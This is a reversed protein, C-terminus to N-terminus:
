RSELKERVADLQSKLWRMESFNEGGARAVLLELAEARLRLLDKSDPDRAEAVDLLHLAEVVEGADIRKRAAAVLADKGALEALEEWVGRAPVAYLAATSDYHFWGAHEEWIARVGWSVKGHAEGVAIEAPLQVERMLAYVDRGENMGRTTEDYVYQVAARVRALGEAIVAAGEIPDGHGTVLREAGLSAVRDLSRLFERASRYKDGRITYLAPFNGFAPGFLNGTFATKEDPLWVVLSDTTEGGPTSLLEFRRGGLEFAFRDEFVETPLPLPPPAYPEDTNGLVGGWLKRSRDRYFRGFRHWYDTVDGYNAHALVRTGDGLFAEAGGTHDAHSQTFVVMDVPADSKASFLTRHHEGENPLGTNIVVDGASTTVLFSATVGPSMWIGDGLSIAEKVGRGGLALEEVKTKTM